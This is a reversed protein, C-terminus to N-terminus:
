YTVGTLTQVAAANRLMWYVFREARLGLMNQQWLSVMSTPPSTPDDALQVSAERSVDLTVDGDDALLVDPASMLVIITEGTAGNVPVATSQIVPYGRFRAPLEPFAFVDQATRLMSLNIVTRPHMVWTFPGPIGATAMNTLLTAVDAMVAAVTAGTSAETNGAHTVSEPSLGPTGAVAPDIFQQNMYESIAKRLDAQVLAEASPSSFRALEETIVAIVAIKSFPIQIADFSLRSVPKSKGEGVWGATAGATQRPIRVNFPVRRFGDIQGIITAPRLLEIFESAMTQYEVLTGAWAPDTTTGAAVAARLVQAVEPTTDNWRAKALREADGISGKSAMLAIAFRTFATGKPLNRVVQIRPTTRVGDDYAGGDSAPAAKAKQVAQMAELRAVQEDISKVTANADDFRASEDETFTRKETEALDMIESMSGVAKSRQEAYDSIRDAITRLM